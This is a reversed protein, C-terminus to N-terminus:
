VNEEYWSPKNRKTWCVPMKKKDTRAQWENFKHNLYFKYAKTPNTLGKLKFNDPMAMAFETREGKAIAIPAKHLDDLLESCKHKKDFRYEYEQCLAKFHDYAWHYNGSSERVWKSSPHNVHTPKYGVQVGDIASHATSLLQALETIMKRCHVDCHDKASQIPCNDSAFINM